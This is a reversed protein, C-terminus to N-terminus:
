NHIIVRFVVFIWIQIFSQRWIMFWQEVQLIIGFDIVNLFVLFSFLSVSWCRSLVSCSLVFVVYFLPVVVRRRRLIWAWNRMNWNLLFNVVWHILSLNNTDCWLNTLMLSTDCIICFASWRFLLWYTFKNETVLPIAVLRIHTPILVNMCFRPQLLLFHSCTMFFDLLHPVGLTLLESVNLVYSITLRCWLLISRLKGM